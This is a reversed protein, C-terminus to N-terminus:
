FVANWASGGKGAADRGEFLIVLNQGTAVVWEQLKVLEGQLRFLERFYFRRFQEHVAREDATKPRQEELSPEDELELELEEDFSDQVERHIRDLLSKHLAPDDIQMPVESM